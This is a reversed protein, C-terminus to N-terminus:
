RTISVEIRDREATEFESILDKAHSMDEEPVWSDNEPGYGKWRVLYHMRRNRGNGRLAAKIIAEVEYEEEGEITVPPPPPQLRHFPDERFPELQAVSVVPHISWGDPFLLKYAQSGVKSVVVFPGVRQLGLKAKPVGQLKYGNGLRLYVKSGVKFSVNKHKKNYEKAIHFRAHRSADEADARALARLVPPSETEQPALGQALAGINNRLKFGYLIENPAKKTTMSTSNNVMAETEGLFQAWDDQRENVFFRLMTQLYKNTAESQGDTQPHYATSFLLSTGL